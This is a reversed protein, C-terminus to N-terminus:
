WYCCLRPKGFRVTRANTESSHFSSRHNRNSKRPHSRYAGACAFGPHLILPLALDIYNHILYVEVPYHYYELENDQIKDLPVQTENFIPLLNIWSKFGGSSIVESVDTEEVCYGCSGFSEITVVNFAM